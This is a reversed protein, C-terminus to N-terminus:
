TLSAQLSIRGSERRLCIAAVADLCYCGRVSSGSIESDAKHLYGARLIVPLIDYSPAPIGDILSRGGPELLSQVSGFRDRGLRQRRM